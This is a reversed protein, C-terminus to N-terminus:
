LQYLGLLSDSEVREGVSLSRVAGSAGPVQDDTVPEYEDVELNRLDLLGPVEKGERRAKKSTSEQHTPSEQFDRKSLGSETMKGSRLPLVPVVAWSKGKPRPPAVVVEEDEGEDEPAETMVVDEATAKTPQPNSREAVTAVQSSAPTLLPTADEMVPLLALSFLGM